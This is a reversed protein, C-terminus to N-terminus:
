YGIALRPDSCIAASSYLELSCLSKINKIGNNCSEKLDRISNELDTTNDTFNMMSEVMKNNPNNPDKNQEYFKRTEAISAKIETISRLAQKIETDCNDLIMTSTVDFYKMAENKIPPTTTPPTTEHWDVKPEELTQEDTQSPGKLMQYSVAAGIWVAIIIVITWLIKKNM